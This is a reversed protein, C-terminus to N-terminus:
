NIVEKKHFGQFQTIHGTPTIAPMKKTGLQQDNTKKTQMGKARKNSHTTLPVHMHMHKKHRRNCIDRNKNDESSESGYNIEQAFM